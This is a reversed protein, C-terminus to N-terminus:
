QQSIRIDKCALTSATILIWLNISATITAGVCGAGPIIATVSIDKPTSLNVSFVIRM